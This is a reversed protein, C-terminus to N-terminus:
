QKSVSRSLATRLRSGCSAITRRSARTGGSCCNVVATVRPSSKYPAARRPLSLSTSRIRSRREWATDIRGNSASAAWTYPGSRAPSSAEPLRSSSGSRRMAEIARAWPNVSTVPLTWCKWRTGPSVISSQSLQGGGVSNSCCRRHGAVVGLQPVCRALHALRRAGGGASAPKHGPSFLACKLPSGILCYDRSM